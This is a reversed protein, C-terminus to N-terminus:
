KLLVLKKTETFSGAQLRYFYVGSSVHTANWRQAHNGAPLEDKVLTTVERGLVDFVKLTVRSKLPLSFSITTSPNFPNPFNQELRFGTPIDSSKQIIGTLTKIIPNSYWSENGSSDYATVAIYYNINATLGTLTHSQINGVDVSDEYQYKLSSTDFFVKYGKIHENVSASWSLSISNSTSDTFNVKQIPVLPASDCPSTLFPLVNAYSSVKQGKGSPNQLTQNPGSSDGWWNKTGDGFSTTSPSYVGYSNNIVFNSNNVHFENVVSQFGYDNLEFTSNSVAVYANGTTSGANNIGSSANLFFTCNSIIASDCRGLYAGDLLNSAFNCSKAELHGTYDRGVLIGYSNGVVKSNDITLKNEVLIGNTYNGSILSNFVALNGYVALAGYALDSNGAITVNNLTDIGNFACGAIYGGAKNNEIQVNNLNGSGGMAALGGVGGGVGLGSVNNSIASNSIQFNANIIAMGGSGSGVRWNGSCTNSCVASQDVIIGNGSLYVGGTNDAINSYISSNSVLLTSNSAYIAGGIGAPASCDHISVNLLKLGANILQIAGGNGNSVNGNLLSFGKVESTTDISSYIVNFIRDSGNGNVITNATDGASFLKIGNVNPWIVNEYYTGPQVLVTDGSQAANLATQIAAYQSPVNRTTGFSEIIFTILLLSISIVLRSSIM